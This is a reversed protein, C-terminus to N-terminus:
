KSQFVLVLEIFGATGADLNSAIIRGYLNGAPSVAYAISLSSTLATSVGAKGILVTAPTGGATTVVNARMYVAKKAFGEQNVVFGLADTGLSTADFCTDGVVDGTVGLFTDLSASTLSGGADFGFVIPSGKQAPCLAATKAGSIDILFKLEHFQRAQLADSKLALPQLNTM